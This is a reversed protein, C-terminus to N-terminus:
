TIVGIATCSLADVRFPKDSPSSPMPAGLMLRQGVLLWPQLYTIYNALQSTYKGRTNKWKGQSNQCPMHQQKQVSWRDSHTPKQVSEWPRAGASHWPSAMRTSPICGCPHQKCCSGPWCQSDWCVQFAESLLQSLSVCCSLLSSLLTNHATRLHVLGCCLLFLPVFFSCPCTQTRLNQSSFFM